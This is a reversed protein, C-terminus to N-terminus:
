YKTLGLKKAAADLEAQTKFFTKRGPQFRPLLTVVIERDDVSDNIGDKLRIDWAGAGAGLSGEEGSQIARTPWSPMCARGRGAAICRRSTAWRDRWQGEEGGEGQVVYNIKTADVYRRPDEM